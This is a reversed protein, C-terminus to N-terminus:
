LTPTQLVQTAWNKKETKLEDVDLYYEKHRSTEDVEKKFEYRGIDQSTRQQQNLVLSKAGGPKRKSWYGDGTGM